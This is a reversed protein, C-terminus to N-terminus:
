KGMVEAIKDKLQDGRLNRAVITGDPGFLIIHPIGQIGYLETPVTQADLIQPWTNGDESIAKITAEREDWVAVSVVTFRDGGYKKYVEAIIPTEQRCPVCWSAWFDVLVYKGKGVYDSLSAASGDANGNDVTFDVFPRGEATLLMKGYYDAMQRVPGFNLVNDGVLKGAEEFFEASPEMQLQMWTLFVMAGLADDPHELLYQVPIENLLALIDDFIEDQLRAQEKEPLTRDVAALREKAMGVVDECKAMFGCLERNLPTGDPSFADSMDVTIVGNEVILTVTLDGVTLKRVAASDTVGRFVFKGGKIRASDIVLGDDYDTMYVTEGDYYGEPVVGKVVFDKEGVGCSSLIAACVVTIFFGIRRM